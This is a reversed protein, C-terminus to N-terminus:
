SGCPMNQIFNMIGLPAYQNVLCPRSYFLKSKFIMDIIYVPDCGLPSGRSCAASFKHPASNLIAAPPGNQTKISALKQFLFGIKKHFHRM